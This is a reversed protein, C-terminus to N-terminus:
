PVPAFTPRVENVRRFAVGHLNIEDAMRGTFRLNLTREAGDRQGLAIRLLPADWSGTTRAIDSTRTTCDASSSPEWWEVDTSRESGDSVTLAFCIGDIPSRAAFLGTPLGPHEDRLVAASLIVGAGLEYTAVVELSVADRLEVSGADRYTLVFDSGVANMSWAPEALDVTEIPELNALGFVALQSFAMEGPTRVGFAFHNQTVALSGPRVGMDLRVDRVVGFSPDLEMLHGGSGLLVAHGSTALWTAAVAGGAPGAHEGVIAGSESMEILRQQDQCGVILGANTAVTASPICPLEVREVVPTATADFVAVGYRNDGPEPSWATVVYIREGDPAASLTMSGSAPLMNHWRDPVSVSHLETLENPDLVQLRADYSAADTGYSTLLYLRDGTPSAALVSDFGVEMTAVTRGSWVDVLVLEGMDAVDPARLVAIARSPPPQVVGASPTPASSPDGIGSPPAAVMLAVLLVGAVGLSPLAVRWIKARWSLQTLRLDVMDPTVAFPLDALEDRLARDVRVDRENSM